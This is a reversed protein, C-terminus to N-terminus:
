LYGAPSSYWQYNRPSVTYAFCHVLDASLREQLHEGVEEVHRSVGDDTYLDQRTPLSQVEFGTTNLSFFGPQKDRINDIVVPTKQGQINSRALGPPLHGEIKYPKEEEYLPIAALYSLECEM